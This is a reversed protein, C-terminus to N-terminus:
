RSWYCVVSSTYVTYHEVLREEVEQSSAEIGGKHFDEAIRNTASRLLIHGKEDANSWFINLAQGHVTRPELVGSETGLVCENEEAAANLRRYMRSITDLTVFPVLYAAKYFNMCIGVIGAAM